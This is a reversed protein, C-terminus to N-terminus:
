DWSFKYNVFSSKNIRYAYLAVSLIVFLLVILKRDREKLQTITSPLLIMLFFVFYYSIREFIQVTTFRLLYMSLGVLSLYFPMTEKRDTRMKGNIMIAAVICLVYILVVFLGGSDFTEALAYDEGTLDDYFVTLEDAFVFLLSLVFTGIALSKWNFRLYYVFYVILFVAASRHFLVAILVVFLFRFFKREKAYEYSLLCIAMSLSQRLASMCFTMMGLCVFSILSITYDKSNKWTFRAICVGVTISVALILFRYHPFFRSLVWSCAYFGSESLLFGNEFLNKSEAFSKFTDYQQMNEYIRGYNSTDAGVSADRFGMVVIAFITCIILFAKGRSYEKRNDDMFFSLGIILFPLMLLVAM